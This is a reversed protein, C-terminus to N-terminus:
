HHKIIVTVKAKFSLILYNINKVLELKVVLQMCCVEKM